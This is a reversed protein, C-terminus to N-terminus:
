AVCRWLKWLTQRQLGRLDGNVLWDISIKHKLAFDTLRQGSALAANVEAPDIGRERTVLELRRRVERGMRM